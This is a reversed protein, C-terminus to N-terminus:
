YYEKGDSPDKWLDSGAFVWDRDLQQKSEANRVWQRADATKFNGEEDRWMLWIRIRQGTAAVYEPDFRVTKGVQGGIALLAAHVESSKAAVGLVSEHEKTESDCAFMELFAERQAVYGDVFVRKSRVDIWLPSMKSIRTANPPPALKEQLREAPSKYGLEALTEDGSKPPPQNDLSEQLSGPPAKSGPSQTPEPGATRLDIMPPAEGTPSQLDSFSEDVAPLPQDVAVTPQDTSDAPSAQEIPQPQRSCGLHPAATLLIGM